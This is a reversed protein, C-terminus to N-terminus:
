QVSFQTSASHALHWLLPGTANWLPVVEYETFADPFPPRGL